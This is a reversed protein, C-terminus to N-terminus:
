IRRKFIKRQGEQAFMQGWVLDNGTKLYPLFVDASYGEEHELSVQIADSKSNTAPISIRVDFLIATLKCEGSKAIERFSNQLAEVLNNAPPTEEFPTDVGVEVIAGDRKMYGGYPHFGGFEKLMRKAFPLIENMLIEAEKKSKM